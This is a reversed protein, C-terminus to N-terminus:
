ARVLDHLERRLRQLGTRIRTKVTGLPLATIGAMERHTIDAFFGMEILERNERPLRALGVSTIATSTRCCSRTPERM